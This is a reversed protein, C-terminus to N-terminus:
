RVCDSCLMRMFKGWWWWAISLLCVFGLVAIVVNLRTRHEVFGWLDLSAWVMIGAFVLLFLPTAFVMIVYLKGIWEELGVGRTSLVWSSFVAGALAISCLALIFRSPVSIRHRTTM